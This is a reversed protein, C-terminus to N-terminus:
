AIGAGGHRSDGVAQAEVATQETVAGVHELAFHAAVDVIAFAASPDPRSVEPNRNADLLKLRVPTGSSSEQLVLGDKRLLLDYAAAHATFDDAGAEFKLPAVDQRDQAWGCIPRM